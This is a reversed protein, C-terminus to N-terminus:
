LVSGVWHLINLTNDSIGVSIFVIFAALEWPVRLVHTAMFATYAYSYLLLCVMAPSLEQWTHAGTALMWLVPAFILTAPISLWNTATVFQYFHDKRGTERTIWYVLGFFMFWIAALRLSYLLAVTNSSHHLIDPAPHLFVMLLTTPFLLIPIVFSRVAEDYTNGFRLRAAPMFLAVELCGLLNRKIEQKTFM